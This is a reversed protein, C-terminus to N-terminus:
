PPSVSRCQQFVHFVGIRARDYLCVDTEHTKESILNVTSVVTLAFSLLKAFVLFM